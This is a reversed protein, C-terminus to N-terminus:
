EGKDWLSFFDHLGEEPIYDNRLAEVLDNRTIKLTTRLNRLRGHNIAQVEIKRILDDIASKDGQKLRKIVQIYSRPQWFSFASMRSLDRGTKESYFTFYGFQKEM